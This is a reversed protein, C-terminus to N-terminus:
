YKSRVFLHAATGVLGTLIAVENRTLKFNMNLIQPAVPKRSNSGSTNTTVVGENHMAQMGFSISLLAAVLILKNM